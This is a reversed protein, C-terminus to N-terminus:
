WAEIELTQQIKNKLKPDAQGQGDVTSLWTQGNSGHLILTVPEQATGYVLLVVMQCDCADTGHNPCSCDHLGIRAANLDFTQVARLRVQSIQKKAWKLTENCPHGVSLFPSINMLAEPEIM